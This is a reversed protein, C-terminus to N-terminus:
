YVEYIGMLLIACLIEIPKDGYGNTLGKQIEALAPGYYNRSRVVSNQDGNLWESHGNALTKMALDLAPNAGAHRPISTIFKGFMMLSKDQPLTSQFTRSFDFSLRDRGSMPVSAISWAESTNWLADSVSSSAVLASSPTDAVDAFAASKRSSAELV